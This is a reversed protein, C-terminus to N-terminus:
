GEWLYVPRGGVRIPGSLALPGGLMDVASAVNGPSLTAVRGGPSYVATVRRGGPQEFVFRETGDTVAPKELFRSEGLQQLFTRLADYAPRRRWDDPDSDDVLGYGRAVLRWWFVREVMGSCLAILLYRLMYDAYTDESVSPDNYRPGPSVYPSGVPSYVGTREIPWNVESVILRDDCAPSTAAIAKALAFKELAAFRGQRNEPAGRRDVYLHHSLAAFHLAPPVQALAAAVDAYEFDIVAPGVYRVRPHFDSVAAMAKLLAGYERYDWIGWKVRNIAHGVEVYEVHEGVQGLVRSAFTAWHGPDKVANRDQVLAVSVSRGEQALGCVTQALYDWEKMSEHHYFRVMVPVNGLERLLALEREWTQPRPDVAVGIRGALAVPQTYCASRLARYERWVPAVRRLAAMAIRLHRLPPYHRKRDRRLMTSIAQGSRPDWIWMDKESPYTRKGRDRKRQRASRVPHRLTRTHAHWGYATRFRREWVQFAEPVVDGFYMEKFVRLLDSPLHLRCLDRARRLLSLSPLIRGRNLDVFQVDRWAAGGVRRLLINQNGLDRHQFGAEHMARVGDAVVQMLDIFRECVPEEHYLRVLEDEFSVLDPVFLSLYYSEVLRGGAWREFYGVPGPTGVGKGALHSAALWTRRAKSGRRSDVADKVLMQRGFAKAVLDFTTGDAELPVRIIRHRGENLAEANGGRLLEPLRALCDLIGPTRYAAAIEGRYPGIDM